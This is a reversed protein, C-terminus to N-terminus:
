LIDMNHSISIAVMDVTQSLHVQFSFSVAGFIPWVEDKIHQIISIIICKVKVPSLYICFQYFSNVKNMPCVNVLHLNGDYGLRVIVILLELLSLGM